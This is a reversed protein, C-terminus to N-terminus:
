STWWVSFIESLGAHTPPSYQPCFIRHRPYKEKWWEPDPIVDDLVGELYDAYECAKNYLEWCRGDQVLEGEDNLILEHFRCWAGGYTQPPDVTIYGEERIWETPPRVGCPAHNDPPVWTGDDERWFERDEPDGPCWNNCNACCPQKTM